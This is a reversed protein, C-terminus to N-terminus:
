QEAETLRKQASEWELRWDDSHAWSRNRDGDAQELQRITAQMHAVEGQVLVLAKRNEDVAQRAADVDQSAGRELETTRHVMRNRQERVSILRARLQQLRDPQTM